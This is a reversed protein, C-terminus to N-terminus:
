SDLNTRDMEDMIVKQQEIIVKLKAKYIRVNEELRKTHNELTEAKILAENIIRSANQKANSIIIDSEAIAAKRIQEGAEEANIISKTSLNQSNKYFSLEKRLQELEKEQKKVREVIAETQKIVDDIFQNVETKNYGNEEYSFKDM